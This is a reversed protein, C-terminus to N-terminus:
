RKWVILHKRTLHKGYRSICDRGDVLTRQKCFELLMRSHNTVEIYSVAKFVDFCKCVIAYGNSGGCVITFM